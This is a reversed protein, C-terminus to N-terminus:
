IFAPKQYNTSKILNWRQEHTYQPKVGQKTHKVEIGLEKCVAQIRSNISKTFEPLKTTKNIVPKGTATTKQFTNM